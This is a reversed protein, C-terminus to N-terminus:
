ASKDDDSMQFTLSVSTVLAVLILFGAVIESAVLFRPMVSEAPTVDGYGVTAITVISFYTLHFFTSRDNPVGKFATGGSEIHCIYYLAAFGLVVVGCLGLFLHLFARLRQTASPGGFTSVFLPNPIPPGRLYVRSGYKVQDLLIRILPIWIAAYLTFGAFLAIWGPRSLFSLVILFLVLM